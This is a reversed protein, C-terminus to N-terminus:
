LKLNSIHFFCSGHRMHWSFPHVPFAASFLSAWPPFSAPSAARAVGGEAGCVAMGLAEERPPKRRNVATSRVLWACSSRLQERCSCQGVVPFEREEEEESLFDLPPEDEEGERRELEGRRPSSREEMAKRRREGGSVVGSVVGQQMLLSAM